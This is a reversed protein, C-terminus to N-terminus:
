RDCASERNYDIVFYLGTHIHMHMRLKYKMHFGVGCIECTHRKVEGHILM